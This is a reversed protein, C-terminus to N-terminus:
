HQISSHPCRSISKSTVCYTIASNVSPDKGTSLAHFIIPNSINGLPYMGTLWHSKQHTQTLVLHVPLQCCSTNLVCLLVAPLSMLKGYTSMLLFCDELFKHIGTSIRTLTASCFFGGTRLASGPLSWQQTGAVLWSKLEASDLCITDYLQTM